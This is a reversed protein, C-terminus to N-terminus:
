GDGALSNRLLAFRLQTDTSQSIQPKVEAAFMSTSPFLHLKM